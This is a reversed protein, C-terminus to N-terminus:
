GNSRDGDGAPSPVGMLLCVTCLFPVDFTLLFPVAPITCVFPESFALPKSCLFPIDFTWLLATLFYTEGGGWARSACSTM